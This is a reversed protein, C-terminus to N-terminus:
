RRRPDISWQDEGELTTMFEVVTKLSEENAPNFPLGLPSPTEVPPSMVLDWGRKYLAEGKTLGNGGMFPFNFELTVPDVSDVYEDIVDLVDREDAQAEPVLYEYTPINDWDYVLDLLFELISNM